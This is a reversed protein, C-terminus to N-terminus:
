KKMDNLLQQIANIEDANHQHQGLAQMVLATRNGNFLTQVMKDVLQERTGERTVMPFYIHKRSSEDRGALGKEFMIQMLKLTTTYGSDKVTNIREHVERVTAHQKEWLISLIELEGDTPKIKKDAM